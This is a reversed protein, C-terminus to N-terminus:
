VTRLKQKVKARRVPHIGDNQKGIVKWKESGKHM